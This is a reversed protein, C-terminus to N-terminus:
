GGLRPLVRGTRSAWERWEEGFARELLLDERAIRGLTAALAPLAAVAFAWNGTLLPAATLLMYGAAYIPHRIVAYPGTTVLRHGERIRLVRSFEEGLARHAAWGLWTFCAALAAGTWAAWEPRPWAAWALAPPYFTWLLLVLGWPIASSMVRRTEADPQLRGGERGRELFVRGVSSVVLVALFVQRWPGAEAVAGAM